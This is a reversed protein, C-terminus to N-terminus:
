RNLLRRIENNTAYDIPKKGKDDEIDINIGNNKLLLIIIDFYENKVALHLPTKYLYISIINYFMIEKRLNM